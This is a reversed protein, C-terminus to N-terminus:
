IDFYPMCWLCSMGSSIAGGVLSACVLASKDPNFRECHKAHIMDGLAAQQELGISCDPDIGAELLSAQLTERAANDKDSRPCLIKHFHWDAAQCEVNCYRARKGRHCGNCKKRASGQHCTFCTRPKGQKIARRRAKLDARAIKAAKERLCAAELARRRNTDVEM